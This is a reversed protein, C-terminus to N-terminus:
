NSIVEKLIFADPDITIGVPKASRLKLSSTKGTPTIQVRRKGRATIIEVTVPLLFAADPQKQELTLEITKADVQTWFIKYVPHGSQYIWRDFFERLNKGSAKEFAARLDESTATSGKHQNYYNKLAAFFVKDGLMGRLEHLVWSGKEYNNKNLLAFLDETETDHIPTRAIKEYAFYEAANDKMYARFAAEGEYKQLFLGAFYTAFGESLWLDAWTAETVSDGFWQHAIEHAVVGEVGSPINFRVGRQKKTAFDQFLNPAFVITDANEMGGFRTAGVILALKGYPYRAVMKSFLNVSPGAPSFGQEAFQRDSHTVYYSIPISSGAKLEATAFQGVAVVMNYPSIRKPEFYVWTRTGDPNDKKSELIGNAVAENRAPATIRFRVTAKASPHDFCPIWHHVRDPWNDGVASPLGDKDNTLILGDKPKGSYTVSVIRTLRKGQTPPDLYVDLKDDHQNFKATRGDVTVSKVPMAGFDFDIVSVDYERVSVNIETTVSTLESLSDNFTLSVDYHAPNWIDILRERRQAPASFFFLFILSLLLLNRAVIKKM